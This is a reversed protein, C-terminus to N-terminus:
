GFTVHDIEVLADNNMKAHVAPARGSCPAALPAAVGAACQRM